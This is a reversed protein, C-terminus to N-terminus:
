GKKITMFIAVRKLGLRSGVTRYFDFNHTLIIISFQGSSDLEKIYEIIAFKNKYDFSDAIDDLVLLTDIGLKKRSEIEFLFQLIFYARQEGKSLINLLTQKDQKKTAGLQDEYIFELAATKEKLIVDEQNILSVEFPVYFRSNFKQVIEKWLDIEKRSEELILEVHPKQMQFYDVLYETESKIQSFYDIWVKKKFEDYNKLETLLTNDKEIVKQFSRLDINKTIESDIKEFASKLKSDNIIRTLEAQVLEKLQVASTIDQGDELTFKHGAHFFSDGEVSKLIENAQYTGFSNGSSKFFTSNTLVEKYKDVYQDLLKTNKDLFKKVVGKKDFVDNYKFTYNITTDTLNTVQNELITFITDRESSQFTALLESECDSSQSISKLRKIFDNKKEEIDAYIKDYAEKLEKRAIFSSIKDSADFNSDEANVVLISENPIANGDSLIECTTTREPYVRDCPMQTSDNKSLLYLTRAFSTKMTGNPAYILFTNTPTQEFEFVHNFKGIGFCNELNVELKKM